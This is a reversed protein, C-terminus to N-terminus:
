WFRGEQWREAMSRMGYKELVPLINGREWETKRIDLIGTKDQDEPSEPPDNLDMVRFWSDAAPRDDEPLMELVAPWRFGAQHLMRVAAVPGIGRIGPIGDSPDGALARLMPLHEPRVGHLLEVTEADAQAGDRGLASIWVRGDVALQLIDKDDSVLLVRTGPLDRAALRSAAALLDDGEFDDLSWQEIQAANCFERVADFERTDAPPYYGPAARARNRKYEPCVQRRWATGRGGDWAVLLRDPRNRRVMAALSQAFLTLAGSPTGDPATMGTHRAAKSCRVYLGTGDVAMLWSGDM